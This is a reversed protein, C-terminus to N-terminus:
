RSSRSPSASRRSSTACERTPETSSTTCEWSSRTDPWLKDDVITELDPESRVLWGTSAALPGLYDDPTTILDGKFHHARGGITSERELVLVRRGEKQALIAGLSLGGLGAGIIILDFATSDDM